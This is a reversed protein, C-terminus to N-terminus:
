REEAVGDAREMRGQLPADPLRELLSGRADAEGLREGVEGEIALDGPGRRHPPAGAGRRAVDVALHREVGSHEVHARRVVVDVAAVELEIAEAWPLPAVVGVAGDVQGPDLGDAAN